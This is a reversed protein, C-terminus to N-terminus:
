CYATLRAILCVRGDDAIASADAVGTQRGVRVATGTYHSTGGAHFPRLYNVRLSSSHLASGARHHNVAASAVLELGAAAVGGHLSGVANVLLPDASQELLHTDGATDRARVAMLDALSTSPLRVLQDVRHGPMTPRSVYFSRVTGCGIVAGDHTITCTSLATRGKPGEARATALVPVHPDAQILSVAEPAMEMALESTVPWERPEARYSNVIGGVDDILIALPGVTPLGTLPNLLGAIPMSMTTTATRMDAALTAIGFRTEVNDSEEGDGPVTDPSAV